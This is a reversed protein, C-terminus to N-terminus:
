KKIEIKGATIAQMFLKEAQFTQMNKTRISIKGISGDFAGSSIKQIKNGTIKIERLNKNGRVIQKGIKKLNRGLTIEKMRLCGALGRDYIEEVSDPLILKKLNSCGAFAEREIATIRYYYDGVKIKEPVKEIVNKTQYSICSVAGSHISSNLIKWVGLENEHVSGRPNSFEWRSFIQADGTVTEKHETWSLTYGKKYLEPLEIPDGYHLTVDKVKEKEDYATIQYEKYISDFRAHYIKEGQVATINEQWGAFEYTFTEDEAKSASEPANPMEGYRINESKLVEGKDGCFIIPYRRKRRAFVPKVVLDKDVFDLPMNWRRFVYEYEDTNEKIPIKEQKASQGYPVKEMSFMKGNESLYMILYNKVVKKYVPKIVLNSKVDDLPTDWGAFEITYHQQEEKIKPMEPPEVDLGQPVFATKLVNGNEDQFVVIFNAM